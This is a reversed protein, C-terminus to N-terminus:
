RGGGYGITYDIAPRPFFQAEIVYERDEDLVISDELTPGTFTDIVFGFIEAWSNVNLLDVVSYLQLDVWHHPFGDVFVVAIGGQLVSVFEIDVEAPGQVHLQFRPVGSLPVVPPFSLLSGILGIVVDGAKIGNLPEDFEAIQWPPLSYGLPIAGPDHFPDAPLFDIIPSYLPM